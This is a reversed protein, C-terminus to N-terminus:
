ANQLGLMVKRTSQNFKELDFERANHNFQHVWQYLNFDTYFALIYGMIFKADNKTIDKPNTIDGRVLVLNKSSSLEDYLTVIYYPPSQELGNVKVSDVSTFLINKSSAFQAVLNFHKGHGKNLPVLFMPSHKANIAIQIFSEHSITRTVVDNRNCFQAEWLKAITEPDRSKLLPVKAVEHLTRPVPYTFSMSRKLTLISYVRRM